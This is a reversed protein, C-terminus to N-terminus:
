AADEDDHEGRMFEKRFQARDTPKGAKAKGKPPQIPVKGGRPAPPIANPAKDANATANRAAAPSGGARKKLDIAMEVDDRVDSDDYYEQGKKVGTKPDDAEAVTALRDLRRAHKQYISTLESQTLWQKVDPHAALETFTGNLANVISTHRQESREEPSPEAPKSRKELLAERHALQKERIDNKLSPISAQFQQAWEWLEEATKGELDKFLASISDAAVDKETREEALDKLKQATQRAHTRFNVQLEHASALINRVSGIKDKPIVASGDPLELIDNLVREGGSAKFQFPKAGVPITPAADAVPAPPTVEEAPAAQTGEDEIEDVVDDGAEDKDLDDTATAQDDSVVDPSPSAPTETPEDEPEESTGSVLEDLEDDSPSYAGEPTKAM